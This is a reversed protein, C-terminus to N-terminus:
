LFWWLSFGACWLSSHCGSVMVLSLGRAAFSWSLWFFFLFYFFFLVRAGSKPLALESVVRSNGIERVLSLNGLNESGENESIYFLSLLVMRVSNQHYIIFYMHVHICYM